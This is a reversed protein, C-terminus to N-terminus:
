IIYFHVFGTNQLDKQTFDKTFFLESFSIYNDLEVPVILNDNCVFSLSANREFKIYFHFLFLSSKKFCRGLVKRYYAVPM